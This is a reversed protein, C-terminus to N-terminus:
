TFTTFFAITSPLEYNSIGLRCLFDFVYVFHQIILCSFLGHKAKGLDIGDLRYTMLAAKVSKIFEKRSAHNEIMQVFGLSDSPGGIWMLVKLDSNLRRLNSMQKFLEGLTSDIVLTNNEISVLGVNIHTCLKPDIQNPYLEHSHNLVSPSEYYCVLRQKTQNQQQMAQRSSSPIFKGLKSPYIIENDIRIVSVNSYNFANSPHLKISSEYDFPLRNASTVTNNYHFNTYAIARAVWFQPIDTSHRFLFLLHLCMSPYVIQIYSKGILKPPIKLTVDYITSWTMYVTVGSM